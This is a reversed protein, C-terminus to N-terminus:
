QLLDVAEVAHGGPVSRLGRAGGGGEGAGGGEDFQLVDGGVGFGVAHLYFHDRAENPQREAFRHHKRGSRSRRPGAQLPEHRLLLHQGPIVLTGM